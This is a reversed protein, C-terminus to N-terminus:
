KNCVVQSNKSGDYLKVVTDVDCESVYPYDTSISPAMLDETATSHALGLAHGLEHRLIAKFQEDNLSSVDYITITSKLIQNQSDDAISKTYGSYGDGNREDTLIITIEGEGNSSEIVELKSPIYFETAQTSAQQLAGAWGLYYKSTSGKPGKGVLSDDVEISTESEVVDKILPIKEPFSAGNIIGVHLPSGSVLRWSLWTDITDGKLNQILYGGSSITGLNSIRYQQGVVEVVYVSYAAFGVGVVLASIIVVILNKRTLYHIKQEKENVTKNLVLAEQAFENKSHESRM